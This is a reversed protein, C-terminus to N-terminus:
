GSLPLSCLRRKAIVLKGAHLYLVDLSPSVIWAEIEQLPKNLSNQPGKNSQKFWM